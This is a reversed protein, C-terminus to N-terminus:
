QQSTLTLLWVEPHTNLRLNVAECGLGSTTLMPVGTEHVWGYLFRQELSDLTLASRGLINIQGGHTHGALCLDIWRGGDNAESTNLTPFLNPSDAVVIVCEGNQFLKGGKRVGSSEQNLGVLWLRDEGISVCHRTDNLLLIGCANLVDAMDGDEPAALAYKGCPAYFESIYHLFANRNELEEPTYGEAKNLIEALTYANYDGGLVLIDPNLSQMRDFVEAAKRTTNLGGLDIDAAYLLTKGEFAPPLDPLAVTARMLHVTNAQIAMYGVFVAIVLAVAAAVWLGWKPTGKKKKGKM